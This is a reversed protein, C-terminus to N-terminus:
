AESIKWSEFGQESVQRNFEQTIRRRAVDDLPLNVPLLEDPELLELGALAITVGATLKDSTESNPNELTRNAQWVDYSTWGYDVADFVPGAVACVAPQATCVAGVAKTVPAAGANLVVGALMTVVM